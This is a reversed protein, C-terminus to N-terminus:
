RQVLEPMPCHVTTVAYRSYDTQPLPGVQLCKQPEAEEREQVLGTAFSDSVVLRCECRGTQSEDQLGSFVLKTM